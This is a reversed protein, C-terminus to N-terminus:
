TNRVKDLKVKLCLKQLISLVNIMFGDTALFREDAQIQSKKANRTLVASLYQLCKERASASVLLSHLVKFM